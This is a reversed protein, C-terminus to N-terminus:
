LGLRVIDLGRVRTGADFARRQPLYGIRRNRSGPAGGLVQLKGAHVPQLGLVARLLTSKGVGNPGLIAVFQGAPVALSVDSWVARGGVRAAAGSLVVAAPRDSTSDTTRESM